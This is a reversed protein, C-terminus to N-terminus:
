FLNSKNERQGRSISLYIELCVFIVLNSKMMRFIINIKFFVLSYIFIWYLLSSSTKLKDVVCTYLILYFFYFRVVVFLLNFSFCCSVIYLSSLIFVRKLQSIQLWESTSGIERGNTVVYAEVM